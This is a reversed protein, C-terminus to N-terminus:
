ERLPLQHAPALDVVKWQGNVRTVQIQFPIITMPANNAMDHAMAEVEVTQLGLTSQLTRWRFAIEVTNSRKIGVLTDLSAMTPAEQRFSPVLDDLTHADGRSWLKFFDDLFPKLGSVAMALKLTYIKQEPQLVCQDEPTGQVCLSPDVPRWSITLVAQLENQVFHKGSGYWDLGFVPNNPTGCGCTFNADNQFGAQRLLSEVRRNAAQIEDEPAANYVLDIECGQGSGTNGTATPDSFKVQDVEIATHHLADSLKLLWAQCISPDPPVLDGSPEATPTSSPTPTTLLAPSLWADFRGPALLVLALLGAMLVGVAARTGIILGGRLLYLSKWFEQPLKPGIKADAGPRLHNWRELEESLFTKGPRLFAALRRLDEELDASEPLLGKLADLGARVHVAAEEPGIGMVAAVEEVELGAFIALALANRRSRRMSRLANAIRGAWARAAVEEAAGSLEWESTAESDEKAALVGAHRRGYASVYLAAQFLWRNLDIKSRGSRGLWRGAARLTQSVQGQAEWPDGCLAM